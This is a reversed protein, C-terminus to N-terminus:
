RRGYACIENVMDYPEDDIDHATVVETIWGGDDVFKGLLCEYDNSEYITPPGGDGIYFCWRSAETEFGATAFSIFDTTSFARENVTTGAV